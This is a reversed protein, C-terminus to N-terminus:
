TDTQMIWSVTKSFFKLWTIKRLAIKFLSVSYFLQIANAAVTDVPHPLYRSFIRLIIEDLHFMM